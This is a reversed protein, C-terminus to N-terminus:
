AMEPKRETLYSSDKIIDESVSQVESRSKEPAPPAMISNSAALSIQANDSISLAQLEELLEDDTCITAANDGISSITSNIDKVGDIESQLDDMTEEVEDLPTQERLQRLLQASDAMLNIVTVNSRASEIANKAQLLQIQLGSDSDIRNQILRRKSLQTKALKMQNRNKYKLANKTCEAAQESWKQLNQEIKEEAKQIDWFSVAIRLIEPIIDSNDATMSKSSLVLVNIGKTEHNERQIIRAMKLDILVQLLFKQDHHSFCVNDRTAHKSLSSDAWNNWESLGMVHPMDTPLQRIESELCKIAYEANGSNIIPTNLELAASTSSRSSIGKKYSDDDDIFADDGDQVWDDVEDDPNRIISAVASAIKLPSMLWSSSIKQPTTHNNAVSKGRKTQLYEAFEKADVFVDESNRRPLEWPIEPNEECIERLVEQITARLTGHRACYLDHAQNWSRTSASTSPFLTSRVDSVKPIEEVGINLPSVFNTDGSEDDSIDFHKTVFTEAATVGENSKKTDDIINDTNSSSFYSFM